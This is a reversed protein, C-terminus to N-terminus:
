NQALAHLEYLRDMAEKPSLSDPETDLLAQLVPHPPPNPTENEESHKLNSTQPTQSTDQLSLSYMKEKALQIVSEPIGALKAVSIGYSKSAAGEKVKYSFVIKGQYEQAEVHMNTICDFHSSLATLEFYHTAFLTICHINQAIYAGIGWALSLGDFTGTGRGIEDLLVLSHKTANQLIEAAECMEVMFTSQGQSLNDSAGIRTFIKDTLGITASTAPVFCGTHALLVILAIQRMYTSKGGMNPGTILNLHQNQTLQTNNCIFQRDKLLQEIVLHRGQEIDIIPEDAISPKVLSFDYSRQAFCLLVDLQAISEATQRLEGQHEDLLNLLAQYCSKELELAKSQASLVKHEFKSLAETTYRETNKLTQRRTYHQPAHESEARSIEIYYGHVRNYGLKLSKLGSTTREDQELQLLYQDADNHLSRLEDLQEHYGKAIVKGDRITAPPADVISKELLDHAESCLLINHNIKELETNNTATLLNKIDPLMALANQLQKLDRPSATKLAIRTLVRVMDGMQKMISPFKEFRYDEILAEVKNQRDIITSKHSLPQILWQKLLRKGMPTCCTNLTSLLTTTSKGDSREYIELNKLTSQSLQMHVDHTVFEFAKIHTIARKQTYQVYCLIASAAKLLYPPPPSAISAITINPHNEIHKYDFDDFPRHTKSIGEPLQIDEQSGHFNSENFLIESPSTTALDQAFKNKCEFVKGWFEGNVLNLHASHYKNDQLFLCSLIADADAPLLYDDTLTGPTVIRVVERKIPGKSQPNAQQTQECIAVTMNNRVLKALYNEAAHFPVGCMPIPEGNSQGRKTLTIDLITAAQTADDFFLEYFDGMRYFLLMNPYQAKITLYQRMMPTHQQLEQPALQLTNTQEDTNTGEM